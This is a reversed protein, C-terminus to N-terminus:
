QPDMHFDYGDTKDPYLIAGFKMPKYKGAPDVAEIQINAQDGEPPLYSITLSYNGKDDTRATIIGDSMESSVSVDIGALRNTYSYVTGSVTAVNEADAENIGSEAEEKPEETAAAAVSTKDVFRYTTEHTEGVRAEFTELSNEIRGNPDYLKLLVNGNETFSISFRGQDDTFVNHLLAGQESLASVRIGSLYGVQELYVQGNLTAVEDDDSNTDQSCAGTSLLLLSLILHLRSFAMLRM